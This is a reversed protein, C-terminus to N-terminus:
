SSKKEEAGKGGKGKDEEGKGEEEPPEETYKWMEAFDGKVLATGYLSALCFPVLYLLAPQPHDFVFMVAATTALGLSYMVMAATFYPKPFSQLTDEVSDKRFNKGARVADYRLCMSIFIGPIVIDGLGLISQKWPDLSAPFILKAPGEFAKAVTVMVETGFVWFIDYLFLGCLLITAIKFSNVSILGIAQMSFAIAFVNHLAFSKTYFWLGAMGVAALFTLINVQNFSVDFPAYKNESKIHYSKEVMSKPMLPYVMPYLTESVAASGLAMLYTTLLMNVYEKPLFKYCVYLTFLAISGIVPFLMADKAKIIDKEKGSGGEEKVLLHLSIHCGIYIIAATFLLMQLTVPLVIFNTVVILALLCAYAGYYLVCTPVM